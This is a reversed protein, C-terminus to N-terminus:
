EGKGNFSIKPAYIYRILKSKACNEIEDESIFLLECGPFWPAFDWEGKILIDQNESEM